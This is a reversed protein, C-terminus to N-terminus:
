AADQDVGRADCRSSGGDVAERDHPGRGHMSRSGPVRGAKELVTPVPVVLAFEKLAGQYDSAMTMVTRDGSRALVVRSAQNFLKADGGAVYFGCFSHAPQPLLFLALAFVLPRGTM